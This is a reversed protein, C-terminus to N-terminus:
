MNCSDKLQDSDQKNVLPFFLAMVGMQKNQQRPRGALIDCYSTIKLSTIKQQGYM